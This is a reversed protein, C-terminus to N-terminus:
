VTTRVSINIRREGMHSWFEQVEELSTRGIHSVPDPLSSGELIRPVGHFCRRAEGALVVVDGSRLLMALPEVDRTLGAFSLCM